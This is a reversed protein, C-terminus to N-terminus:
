TTRQALTPQSQRAHFTARIAQLDVAGFTAFIFRDQHGAVFELFSRLSRENWATFLKSHGILVVPLACAASSARREARQLAARLQIGTCQNFDLKWAHRRLLQIGRKLISRAHARGESELMPESSGLRHLRSQLVRYLRLPTLFAGIWRSEAYIPVEFLNSTLERSCVDETSVPWPVLADWARSYNFEVLGHRRGYKFVSTDIRVGADSLARVADSSPQMAWNGARFVSCSYTSRVPRLISELFDRGERVLGLIRRYGLRAFDYSQYDQEWQGERYVASVYSPHLHLQVDHGGAVANQLQAVIAEYAFNDRGTQRLHDRFRLIEAVEAMITLKAGYRDFLKLMRRTPEVMLELPSGDGNGHIEHDSTFIVQLM